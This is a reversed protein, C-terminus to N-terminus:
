VAQRLALIRRGRLLALDGLRRREAREVRREVRHRERDACLGAEDGPGDVGVALVQGAHQARGCVVLAGGEDLDVLVARNIVVVRERRDGLWTLPVLPKDPKLVTLGDPETGVAAM